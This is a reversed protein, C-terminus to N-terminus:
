YNNATKGTVKMRVQCSPVIAPNLTRIMLKLELVGVKDIIECFTEELENDPVSTLIDVINECKRRSYQTNAWCQREM